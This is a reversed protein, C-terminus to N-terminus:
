TCQICWSMGHTRLPTITVALVLSISHDLYTCAYLPKLMVSGFSPFVPNLKRQDVPWLLRHSDFSHFWSLLLCWVLSPSLGYRVPDVLISFLLPSFFPIRVREVLENYFPCLKSSLLCSGVIWVWEYPVIVTCSFQCLAIGLTWLSASTVALDLSISHDIHYLCVLHNPLVFSCPLDFSFLLAFPTSGSSWLLAVWPWSSAEHHGDPKVEKTQKNIRVVEYAQVVNVM